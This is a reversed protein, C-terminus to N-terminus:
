GSEYTENCIHQYWNDPANAFNRIAVPLKMTDIGEDTRGDTKRDTHFLEAGVPRIKKHFKISPKKRLFPPSFVLNM